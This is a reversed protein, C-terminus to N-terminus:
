GVRHQNRIQNPPYTGQTRRQALVLKASTLRLALMLQQKTAEGQAIEDATLDPQSVPITRVRVRRAVAVFQNRRKPENKPKVESPNDRAIESGSNEKPSAAPLIVSPKKGAELSNSRQTNRMRLWLGAGLVLMVIAAAVAFAPYFFKRRGVRMGAPIELPRPQYRLQGLVQEL